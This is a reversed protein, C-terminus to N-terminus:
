ADRVRLVVRMVVGRCVRSALRSAAYGVVEHELWWAACAHGRQRVLLHRLLLVLMLLMVPMLTM